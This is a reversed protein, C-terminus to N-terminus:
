RLRRQSPYSLHLSLPVASTLSVDRYSFYMIDDLYYAKIKIRGDRICDRVTWSALPLTMIKDGEQIYGVTYQVIEGYITAFFEKLCVASLKM